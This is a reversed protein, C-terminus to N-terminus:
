SSKDKIVGHWVERTMQTEHAHRQEGKRGDITVAKKDDTMDDLIILNTNTKHTTWKAASANGIHEALHCYLV